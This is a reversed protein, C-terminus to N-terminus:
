GQPHSGKIGVGGKGGRFGKGGTERMWSSTGRCGPDRRQSQRLGLLKSIGDSAERGRETSPKEQEKGGKIFGEFCFLNELGTERELSERQDASINREDPSHM